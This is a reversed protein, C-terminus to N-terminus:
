LLKLDIKIATKIAINIRENIKSGNLIGDPEIFGLKNTPSKM